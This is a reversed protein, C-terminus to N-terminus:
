AWAFRRLGEATVLRGFALEPLHAPAFPDGTAALEDVVRARVANAAARDVDFAGEWEPDTLEAVTHVVDGLLLAREGADHVVFVTSGPTHGPAPRALIGPVLEVEGTFTEFRSEAPAVRSRALADLVPDVPDGTMFYAWDDEHARYTANPFTPADRLSAWGVHDIHLHTFVVDTVDAPTIGHRRDLDAILGGTVFAEHILEPGMGLDVLVVRDGSRVLFSGIDMRLRGAADLPQHACSWAAGAAHHAAAEVPLRAVGDFVPVIEIRGVRM